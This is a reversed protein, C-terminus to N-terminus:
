AAVPWDMYEIPKGLSTFLEIEKSIGYSEEWGPMKVVILGTAARMMPEDAPLWISHDLKDINGFDAIPHTHAIPCYVARGSKLVQAAARCAEVWAAALGDKYRSYPTALYFFGSTM